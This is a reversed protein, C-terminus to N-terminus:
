LILSCMHKDLNVTARIEHNQGHFPSMTHIDGKSLVQHPEDKEQHCGTAEQAHFKGPEEPIYVYPRLQVATCHIHLQM